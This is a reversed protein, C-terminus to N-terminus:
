RYRGGYIIVYISMVAVAIRLRDFLSVHEPFDSFRLVYIRDNAM